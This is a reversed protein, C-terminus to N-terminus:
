EQERFLHNEYVNQVDQIDPPPHLKMEEIERVDRESLIGEKKKKEIRGEIEEIIKKQTNKDVSKIDLFEPM